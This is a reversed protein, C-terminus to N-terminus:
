ATQALSQRLRQSDLAAVSQPATKLSPGPSCPSATPAALFYIGMTIDFFPGMMFHITTIRTTKKDGHRRTPALKRNGDRAQIPRDLQTLVLKVKVIHAEAIRTRGWSRCNAIDSIVNQAIKDHREIRFVSADLEISLGNLFGAEAILFAGVCV